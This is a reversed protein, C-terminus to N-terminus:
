SRIWSRARWAVPSASSRQEPVLRGRSDLTVVQSARGGRSRGAPGHRRPRRTAALGSRIEVLGDGASPGTRVYRLSVGGDEESRGPSSSVEARVVAGERSRHAEASQARAPDPARVNRDGARRRSASRGAGPAAAHRPRRRRRDGRRAGEARKGGLELEVEDGPGGAALGGARGSVSRRPAGHASALRVLPGDRPRSIAPRSWRRWSSRTSRLWWSRSPFPRDGRMRLFRKPLLSAPRRPPRRRARASSSSRPRPARAGRAARISGPEEARRELESRASAVAARASGPPPTPSACGRPARAGRRRAGVRGPM